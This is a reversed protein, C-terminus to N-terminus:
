KGGRLYNEAFLKQGLNHRSKVEFGLCFNLLVAKIGSIKAFIIQPFPKLNHNLNIGFM